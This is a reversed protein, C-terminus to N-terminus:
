PKKALFVSNNREPFVLVRGYEDKEAALIGKEVILSRPIEKWHRLNQQCFGPSIVPEEGASIV